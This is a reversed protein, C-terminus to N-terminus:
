TTAESAERCVAGHEHPHRAGASSCPRSDLSARGGRRNRDREHATSRVDEKM